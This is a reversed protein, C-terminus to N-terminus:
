PNTCAGNYDFTYVKGDINESVDRLMQGGFYCYFGGKYPDRYTAVQRMFYYWKGNYYFWESSKVTGDGNGFIYDNHGCGIWGSRYEMRGNSDFLYTKGNVEETGKAMSGYVYGYAHVHANLGKFYYWAGNDYVWEGVKVTGDGNGYYWTYFEYVTNYVSIWGRKTTMAGNKSFLYVKDGIRRAVDSM